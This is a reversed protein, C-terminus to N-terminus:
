LRGAPGERCSRAPRGRADGASPDSEFRSVGTKM